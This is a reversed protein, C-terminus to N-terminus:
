EECRESKVYLQINRPHRRGVRTYNYTVTGKDSRSFVCPDSVFQSFGNSILFEHLVHNWNRGSQKLGYLSKNLKCVLTEGNEGKQVFGEPQQVYLECDIPANLYATKVDMQHIEMNQDLALQILMRISTIKATPSFTEFYDIEPIQSYGKAVFRAKYNKKGDQGEKVAYVWRGGVLSKGEPLTTLTYTDNEGLSKMEESMAKLWQESDPSEIADKYTKPCVSLTCCIDLSVNAEDIDRNVEETDSSDLDEGSM